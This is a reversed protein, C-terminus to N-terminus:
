AKKTRMRMLASAARAHDNAERALRAERLRLTKAAHAQTVFDQEEVAQGKAFFPTQIKSSASEARQRTRSFSQAM